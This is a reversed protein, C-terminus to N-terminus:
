QHVITTGGVFRENTYARIVFTGAPLMKLNLLLETGAKFEQSSLRIGQMTYIEVKLIANELGTPLLLRVEDTAPNPMCEIGSFYSKTQVAITRSYYSTGDFDVQKLRYYWITNEEATTDSFQYRNAVDSNGAAKLTAISIFSLGDASREILFYDSNIESATNWDLLITNNQKQGSFAVLEVPLICDNTIVFDATRSTGCADTVTVTHNETVGMVTPTISKTAATGGTNWSYTYPTVGYQPTANMVFSSNCTVMTSLNGNGTTTNSLTEMTRGQVTISWNDLTQCYSRSVPTCGDYNSYSTCNTRSTNITFNLNQNSCSANNCQVLSQAGNAGFAFSSNWNGISNCSPCNWIGTGSPSRGSGCPSTVWVQAESQWCDDSLTGHGTYFGFCWNSNISWSASADVPKVGAAITVIITNNCFAPSLMTGATYTTGNTASATVLPDVVVPYVTQPDNLIMSDCLISLEKGSLTYPNLWGQKKGSSDHTRASQIEAFKQHTTKNYVLLQTKEAGFGNIEKELLAELSSSLELEDIFYLRKVGPNQKIIFDSKVSAEKYQMRLDIGPFVNRIYCEKGSLALDTWDARHLTETNDNHIIRLKFHNFSFINEGWYVSSRQTATNLETPVPQKSAKYVGDGLSRLSPDIAVLNGNQYFNVPKSSKYLYCTTPRDLDIFYREDATRKSLDEVVNKDQPADAPLIGFDPHQHYEKPNYKKGAEESYTRHEISHEQFSPLFRHTETNQAAANLFLFTAVVSIIEKMCFGGLLICFYANIKSYSYRIVPLHYKDTM